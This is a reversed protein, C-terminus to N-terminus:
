YISKSVENSYTSELGSTSYATVTFFYTSGQVLNKVTYQTMKGVGVPAGYSGSTKGVYVKYGAM